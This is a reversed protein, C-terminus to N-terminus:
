QLMQSDVQFRSLFFKIDERADSSDMILSEAQGLMGRESTAGIESPNASVDSSSERREQFNQGDDSPDFLPTNGAVLDMDPASQEKFIDPRTPVADTYVGQLRRAETRLFLADDGSIGMLEAEAIIPENLLLAAKARLLRRTKGDEGDATKGLIELSAEPFGLDLLRQAFRNEIDVPLGVALNRLALKLFEIDDAQELLRTMVLSYTESQSFTMSENELQSLKDLAESFRGSFALSLIQARSLDGSLETQRYEFQYAAVLDVLDDDIPQDVAVAADVLDVLALPSFASNTKLINLLPATVAEAEGQHLSHSAQAYEYAPSPDTQGQTVSSLISEATANDGSAIFKKALGPGLHHRLNQPLAEFALRLGPIDLEDVFSLNEASLVSWLAADSGCALQWYSDDAEPDYGFDVIRAMRRMHQVQRASTDLLDLTALAEQGFGYHIYHRALGIAADENVEDFEQMLLQRWHSVGAAFGSENGWSSVKFDTDKVCDDHARDDLTEDKDALKSAFMTRVSLHRQMALPDGINEARNSHAQDSSKLLGQSTANVIQASLPGLDLHARGGVEQSHEATFVHSNVNEMNDAKQGNRDSNLPKLISTLLFIDSSREHLLPLTTYNNLTSNEPLFNKQEDGLHSRPLKPFDEGVDIVLLSAGEINARYGCNCALLVDLGQKNSHVIIDSIRERGIRSFVNSTDIKPDSLDFTIRLRRDEPLIQWQAAKPLETVLRTYGDHEGTRFVLSQAAAGVSSLTFIYFALILRRM